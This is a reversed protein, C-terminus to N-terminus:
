ATAIHLCGNFTSTTERGRTPDLTLSFVTNRRIVQTLATSTSTDILAFQCSRQFRIIFSSCSKQRFFVDNVECNAIQRVQSSTM